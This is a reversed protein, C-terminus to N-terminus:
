LTVFETIRLFMMSHSRFWQFDIVHCMDARHKTLPGIPGLACLTGYRVEYPLELAQSRLDDVYAYLLETELEMM